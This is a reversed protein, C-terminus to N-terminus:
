VEDCAGKHLFMLPTIEEDVQLLGPAHGTIEKRCVDCRAVVRASTPGARDYSVAIM